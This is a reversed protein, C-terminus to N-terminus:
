FASYVGKRLLFLKHFLVSFVFVTSKALKILACSSFLGGGLLLSPLSSLKYSTSQSESGQWPLHRHISWGAQWLLAGPTTLGVCGQFDLVRTTSANHGMHIRPPLFLSSNICVRLLGSLHALQESISRCDNIMLKEPIAIPAPGRCRVLLAWATCM